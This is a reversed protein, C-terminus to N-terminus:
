SFLLIYHYRNIRYHCSYHHYTNEDIERHFAATGSLLSRHGILFERFPEPLLFQFARRLIDAILLPEVLVSRFLRIKVKGYRTSDKCLVFNAGTVIIAVVSLYVVKM